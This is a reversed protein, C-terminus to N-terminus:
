KRNHHKYFAEKVGQMSVHTYRDTTTISSHGLMDQIVRLDAGNDLLHTAFSHRLTHPHINKNIGAAHAMSKIRRWVFIRDIKKGHKNLFLATGETERRHHILYHDVALLAKRGLPVLREKGGKGVIRVQYDDVAYLTLSALESARMGTAYLLEIMALDRAGSFTKPNISSIIKEIEEKTLVTPVKISSKGREFFLSKDITEHEERYLFRFFVKLTSIMREISTSAYGHQQMESLFRLAHEKTFSLPDLKQRVLFAYFLDLDRTYAEISNPALGKESKLYITFEERFFLV